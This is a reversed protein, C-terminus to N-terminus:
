RATNKGRGPEQAIAIIESVEAAVKKSIRWSDFAMWSVMALGGLQIATWVSLITWEGPTFMM